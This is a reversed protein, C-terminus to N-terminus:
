GFLQEFIVVFFKIRRRGNKYLDHSIFHVFHIRMYRIQALIDSNGLERKWEMLHLYILFSLKPKFFWNRKGRLSYDFFPCFHYNNSM